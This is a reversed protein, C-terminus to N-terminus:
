VWREGGGFGLQPQAERRGSGRRRDSGGGGGFGQQAAEQWQQDFRQAQPGHEIGRLTESREEDGGNRRRRELTRQRDGLGRTLRMHEEGSRGDRM